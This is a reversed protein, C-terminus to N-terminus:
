PVKDLVLVQSSKGGSFLKLQFIYKYIYQVIVLVKKRNLIKTLVKMRTMQNQLNTKM